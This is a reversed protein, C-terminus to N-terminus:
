GESNVKCMLHEIHIIILSTQKEFKKIYATTREKENPIFKDMITVFAAQRISEDEDSCGPALIRATGFVVVSSFDTSVEDVRVKSKDVVTFCVKSHNKIADIKHGTTAGHMYICNDKYAFNVPVGYPYDHDGLVSLIGYECKELLAIGFDKEAANEKRRLERFM